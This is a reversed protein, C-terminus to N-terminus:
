AIINHIDNTTSANVLTHLKSQNDRSDIDRNQLYDSTMIEVFEDYDLLGDSGAYKKFVQEPDGPLKIGLKIFEDSEM